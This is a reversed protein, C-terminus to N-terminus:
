KIVFTLLIISIVFFCYFSYGFISACKNIRFNMSFGCILLCLILTMICITADVILKKNLNEDFVFIAFEESSGDGKLSKIILRRILSVGFGFLMGFVPAGISGSLAMEAYGTKALSTNVIFDPLSNGIALLTMSIFSQPINTPFLLKITVIMDMLINTIFWLWLISIIFASALLLWIWSPLHTRYSIRYFVFSLLLMVIFYCLTVIWYDILTKYLNFIVIIFLSITIPQFIFMTRKWKAEEYAPITLDRLFNLPLDLIIFIIKKFLSKKKWDSERNLYLRVLDYKFKSYLKLEGPALDNPKTLNSAKTKRHYYTKKILKEIDFFGKAVQSETYVDRSKEHDSQIDNISIDKNDSITEKENTDNVKISEDNSKSNSSGDKFLKVRFDDNPNELLFSYAESEAVEKSKKKDMFFCVVVYIIYFVLFLCSEWLKITKTAGLILVYSLALFYVSLDRIYNGPIVNVGGGFLVVSSLVLGVVIFGGGLLSGLSTEVGENEDEGAVFAVIVDPAQNGLALLTLGALNQSLSLKESIIGLAPALYDGGTSSLIYFCLIIIIIALIYTLWNHDDITCYNFQLLSFYSFFCNETVFQCRNIPSEMRIKEWSCNEGSM